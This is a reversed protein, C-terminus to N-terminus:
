IRSRVSPERTYTAVIAIIIGGYVAEQAASSLGYGVLMTSVVTLVLTGLVTRFYSGRGGILSSGGVVVCAISTFLYPDGVTFLGAGTFGALLLGAGSASIGSVAFCLVWIWTERVLMLRAAPPNAGAAYTRRGLATRRLFLEVLVAVAAWFVVVPSLPIEWTKAAPSTFTGLWTPANGTLTANTWVLIGGGIVAGSALTVILPAIEFVKSVFGNFAGLVAGSGLVILLVVGFPLHYTGYLQSAMVNGAGVLAPVSLDIGALLVVLTQGISAIGLFSALVLMSRIPAVGAFGPISLAGIGFTALLAIIQLAPSNVIARVIRVAQADGSTM